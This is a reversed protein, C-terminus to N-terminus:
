NRTKPRQKSHRVLRVYNTNIKNNTYETGHHFIIIHARQSRDPDTSSSWYFSGTSTNPFYDQNITPRSYEGNRLNKGKCSDYKLSESISTGNSCFILGRLEEITPLRWDNYGAFKNGELAMADEWSYEKAEGVDCLSGSLGEVCKKWMLGTSLDSVTENSNSKFKSRSKSVPRRSDLSLAKNLNKTFGSLSFKDLIKLNTGLILKTYIYNGSKMQEIIKDTGSYDFKVQAYRENRFEFPGSTSIIENEDIKITAHVTFVDGSEGREESLIALRFEDNHNRELVLVRESHLSAKYNVLTCNTTGEFVDEQCETLWDKSVLVREANAIVPSAALILAFFSRFINM